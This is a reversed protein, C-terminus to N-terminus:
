FFISTTDGYITKDLTFRCRRDHKGMKERKKQSVGNALQLAIAVFAIFQLARTMHMERAAQGDEM